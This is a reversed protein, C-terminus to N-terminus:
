YSDDNYAEDLGISWFGHVDETSFDQLPLFVTAIWASKAAAGSRLQTLLRRATVTTTGKAELGAHFRSLVWDLHQCLELVDCHFCTFATFCSGGIDLLDRWFNGQNELQSLFNIEASLLPSTNSLRGARTKSPLTGSSIAAQTLSSLVSAAVVVVILTTLSYFKWSLITASQKSMVRVLVPWLHTAQKHRRCIRQRSEEWRATSM